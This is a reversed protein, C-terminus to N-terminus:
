AVPWPLISNSIQLVTADPRHRMPSAADGIASNVTNDIESCKVFNMSGETRGEGKNEVVELHSEAHM